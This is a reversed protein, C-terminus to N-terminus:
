FRIVIKGRQKSGTKWKPGEKLLQIAKQDCSECLSKEVKINVAAGQKNVDFSLTVEGEKPREAIEDPVKLSEALYDNYRNWGEKPELQGEKVQSKPRARRTNYGTVVVEQLNADAEPLVLRNDSNKALLHQRSQYGVASVTVNAATDATMVQFRGQVDSQIQSGTQAVKVSAFPIARGTTDIITGSFRQPQLAVAPVTTLDSNRSSEAALSASSAPPASAVSTSGVVPAKDKAMQRKSIPKVSTYSDAIAETTTNVTSDATTYPTAVNEITKEVPTSKTELAVPSNESLPLQYALWGLVGVALCAAAVKPVWRPILFTRKTDAKQVRGALREKLSVMDAVPTAAAEFGELADALFPDSLAAKELAHKDKATMEGSHYRTLDAASYTNAANNDM